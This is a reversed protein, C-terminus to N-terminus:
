AMGDTNIAKVHIINGSRSIGKVDLKTGDKTLAKVDYITGDRGFAKVPAFEDESVLIKIPLENKNVFARINMFSHQKSEQIAKVDFKNGEADFAKIDLNTGEDSVAKVNWIIVKFEKEKKTKKKTKKKPKENPKFDDENESPHMAKVHAHVNFGKSTMEKEKTNIKIGKVDNMKGDPSIAKIAFM